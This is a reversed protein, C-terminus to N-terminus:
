RAGLLKLDVLEPERVKVACLQLQHHTPDLHVILNSHDLLELNWLLYPAIMIQVAVDKLTLESYDRHLKDNTVKNSEWVIQIHELTRCSWKWIRHFGVPM